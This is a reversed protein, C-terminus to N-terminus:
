SKDDTIRNLAKLVEIWEEETVPSHHLPAVSPREDEGYRGRTENGDANLETQLKQVAKYNM